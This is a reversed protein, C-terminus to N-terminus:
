ATQFLREGAEWGQLQPDRPHQGSEKNSQVRWSLLAHGDDCQVAHDALNKLHGGKESEVHTAPDLSTGKAGSVRGFLDGVRGPVADRWPADEPDTYEPAGKTGNASGKM